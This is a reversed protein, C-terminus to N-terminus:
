FSHLPSACPTMSSLVSPFLYCPVYLCSELLHFESNGLSFKLSELPDDALKLLSAQGIRRQYDDPDGQAFDKEKQATGEDNLRMYEAVQGADFCLPEQGNQGDKVYLCKYKLHEMTDHVLSEILVIDSKQLVNMFKQKQLRSFSDGRALNKWLRSQKAAAKANLSLHSMLSGEELEAGLFVFLPKLAAEKDDLLAECTIWHMIEPQELLVHLCHEQLTRWQKVISYFHSDGIPANSFSIAVDRPDRTLYVYRLRAGYYEFLDKHYKAYGMSKCIWKKRGNAEAYVNMLSDFIAILSPPKGHQRCRSYINTRDFLIADGEENRWTVPNQEVWM